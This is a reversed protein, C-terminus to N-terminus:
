DLVQTAYEQLIEDLDALAAVQNLRPRLAAIHPAGKLYWGIHKRLEKMAVAEGKYKAALRGHTRIMELKDSLTPEPLLEGTELYHKIRRFLWPNGRAARGVLLGDCGTEELLRQAQQPSDVDGNGLVPISLAQKVRAIEAYDAQGRYFQERTRGHVTVFAAGAAEVQLAVEVANIHDSDWGLRIKVSVPVDVAEVVASVVQRALEPDKMLAAGDNNKVIKPTPCGMNIDIFDPRLKAVAIAGQAMTEPESGFIQLAIPREEEGFDLLDLTRESGYCIGKASVMESVLLDVGFEKVIQRYARDTVGAMPALGVIPQKKKQLLDRQMM